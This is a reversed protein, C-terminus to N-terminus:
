TKLERKVERAEAKAWAADDRLTSVTQTPALGRRKVDNMANKAMVAGIVLFVVGIILASLWYREDLIRGLGAVLFATIALFGALALALATGVKAGDRALTAGTQRMEAKALAVEQRVLEGTDTSLQRLLEGISPEEGTATPRTENGVVREIRIDSPDRAM